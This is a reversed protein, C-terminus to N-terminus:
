SCRLVTDESQLTPPDCAPTLFAPLLAAAEEFRLAHIAEALQRVEAPGLVHSLVSQLDSFLDLSNSNLIQHLVSCFFMLAPLKASNTQLIGFM